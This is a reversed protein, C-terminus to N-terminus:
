IGHDSCLILGVVKYTRVMLGVVHGMMQMTLTIEYWGLLKKVKLLVM